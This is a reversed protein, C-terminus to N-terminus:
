VTLCVCDYVCVCVYVCVQMLALATRGAIVDETFYPAADQCHGLPDVTIVSSHAAPPSAEYNYGRYAALNGVLFIDYRSAAVTLCVCLCVYM